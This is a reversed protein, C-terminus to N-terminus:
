SKHIRSSGCALNKVWLEWVLRFARIEWYEWDVSKSAHRWAFEGTGTVRGACVVLLQALWEVQSVIYTQDASLYRHRRGKFAGYLEQGERAFHPVTNTSRSSVSHSCHDIVADCYTEKLGCRCWILSFGYLTM